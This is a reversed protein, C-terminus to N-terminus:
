ESYRTTFTRGQDASAVVGRDVAAVCLTERGDRVDVTIAEPQGGVSGREAWTVGGDESRQVTGDPTVGYLRGQAAWTLVVLTPAGAVPTWARGGDTSRVVGEQTTALITDASKPDVAFDAMPLLGMEDHTLRLAKRAADQYAGPSMRAVNRDTLDLAVLLDRLQKLRANM